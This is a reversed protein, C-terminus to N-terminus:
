VGHGYRPSGGERSREIRHEWSLKTEHGMGTKVMWRSEAMATM